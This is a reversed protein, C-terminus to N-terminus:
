ESFWVYDIIDGYEDVELIRLEERRYKNGKRKITKAIEILEKLDEGSAITKEDSTHQWGDGIRRCFELEYTM